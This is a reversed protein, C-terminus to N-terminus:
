LVYSFTKCVIFSFKIFQIEDVLIKQEKFSMTLFFDLQLSPSFIKLKIDYLSSLDLICLSNKIKVLLCVVLNKFILLLTSYINREFFAHLHFLLVLFFISLTM